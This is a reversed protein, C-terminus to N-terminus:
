RTSEKGGSVEQSKELDAGSSFLEEPLLDLIERSIGNWFYTAETMIDYVKPEKNEKKLEDFDKWVFDDNEYKVCYVLKLLNNDREALSEITQGMSSERTMVEEMIQTRIKEYQKKLRDITATNPHKKGREKIVILEINNLKERLQKVKEEDKDTWIEKERLIALMQKRTPVKSTYDRLHENYVKAYHTSLESQVGIDPHYIRIKVDKKNRFKDLIIERYGDQLEKEAKDLVEKKIGEM